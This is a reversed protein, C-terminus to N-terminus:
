VEEHAPPISGGGAGPGIGVDPAINGAGIPKWVGYYTSITVTITGIWTVLMEVTLIGANSDVQSLLSAVGTLVIMIVAKAGDSLTSKTLLGVVLPLLFAVLPLWTSVNNLIEQM